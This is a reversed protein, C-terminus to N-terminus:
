NNEYENILIEILKNEDKILLGSRIYHINKFDYKDIRLYDKETTIIKANLKKSKSYIKELDNNTYQYHDPFEINDVINFNENKLMTIFTEHNGIGSFVLYKEDKNFENTNLSHYKSSFININPTIGEIINNIESIDENNGNLFINKYFKLDNLKQRFPGAPILM